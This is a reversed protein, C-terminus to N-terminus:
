SPSVLPLLLAFLRSSFKPFHLLSSSGVLRQPIPGTRYLKTMNIYIKFTSVSPCLLEM